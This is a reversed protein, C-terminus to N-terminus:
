RDITKKLLTQALSYQAAAARRILNWAEDERDLRLQSAGLSYLVEPRTNGMKVAKALAREAEPFRQLHFYCLGLQYYHDANKSHALIIEWQTAAKRYQGLLYLSTALNIRAWDATPNGELGAQYQRIAGGLNGLQQQAYAMRLLYEPQIDEEILKEFVTLAMQFKGANLLDVAINYKVEMIQYWITRDEPSLSAAKNLHDLAEDTKKLADLCHSILQLLKPHLPNEIEVQRLLRLAEGWNEQSIQQHARILTLNLTPSDSAALLDMAADLFGQQVLIWAAEERATIQLPARGLIELYIDLALNHQGIKQYLDALLTMGTIFEPHETVLTELIAIAERKKGQLSLRLARIYHSFAAQLNKSIQTEVKSKNEQGLVRYLAALRAHYLPNEPDMAIAMELYEQSHLPTAARQWYESLEFLVKPDEPSLTYLIKLQEKAQTQHGQSELVFAYLRRFRPDLPNLKITQKIHELSMAPEETALLFHALSHHSEADGNDQILSDQLLDIASSLSGQRLKIHAISRLVDSNGPQIELARKLLHKGHYRQGSRVLLTGLRILLAPQNPYRDIGAKLLQVAEEWKYHRVLQSAQQKYEGVTQGASFTLSMLLIVLRALCHM